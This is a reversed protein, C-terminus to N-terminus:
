DYYEEIKKAVQKIQKMLNPKDDNNDIIFSARKGIQHIRSETATKEERLFEEFTAEGEGAKEKRNKTREYRVRVNAEVYITYFDNGYKEEFIDMDEKMRISDVIAIKPNVDDINSILAEMLVNKGFNRKLVLAMKTLNERTIPLFLATLITRLIGSSHFMEAKLKKIFYDAVTGKGCGKEGILGIIITKKM